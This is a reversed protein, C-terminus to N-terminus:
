GVCFFSSDNNYLNITNEYHSGNFVLIVLGYPACKGERPTFLQDQTLDLDEIESLPRFHYDKPNGPYCIYLKILYFAEFWQLATDTTWICGLRGLRQSSMYHYIKCCEKFGIVDVPKCMSCFELVYRLAVTNYTMNIDSHEIVNFM